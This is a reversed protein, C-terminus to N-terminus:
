CNDSTILLESCSAGLTCGLPPIPSILGSSDEFLQDPFVMHLLHGLAHVRHRAPISEFRHEGVCDATLTPLLYLVGDEM